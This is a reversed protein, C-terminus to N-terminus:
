IQFELVNLTILSGIPSKKLQIPTFNLNVKIDFNSANQQLDTHSIQVLIILFINTHCKFEYKTIETREFLCENSSKNDCLHKLCCM